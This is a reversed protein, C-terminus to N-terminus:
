KCVCKYMYINAILMFGCFPLERLLACSCVKGKQTVSIPVKSYYRLLLVQMLFSILNSKIQAQLKLHLSFINYDDPNYVKPVMKM